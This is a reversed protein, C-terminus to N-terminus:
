ITARRRINALQNQSNSMEDTVVFAKFAEPEVGGGLEFAGSMMQPAPAGEGVSGRPSAGGGGGGAGVDTQMISNINALGAALAIGASLPGLVLGAPAPVSMGQNYAAIVSSFMDITALGIKLKKQKEALAARKGDYKAEIGELSKGNAEALKVEKNYSSEIENSEAELMSSAFAKINNTMEAYVAAKKAATDKALAIEKESQSLQEENWQDNLLIKSDFLTSETALNAATVDMLANKEVQLAIWNEESQNLNYADQAAQVRIEGAKINAANNEETIRTLEALAKQRDDFSLLENDIIQQKVLAAKAFKKNMEDQIVGSRDAAKATETIAEAQKWTATTYKKIAETGETITTAVKDFTDDVGTLTDVFEKGAEKADEMAGPFDGAFVKVVASVLFGLSELASQFREIINERVATGFDKISQIPDDFISTFYGTIVGINEGLYNFLDKFAITLSTTATSFVDIVAQNKFITEKLLMFAKELLFIIGSAKAISKLSIGIGAVGKKAEKAGKSVDKLDKTVKGLDSKVELELVEKAM